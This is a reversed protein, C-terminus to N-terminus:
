QLTLEMSMLLKDSWINFPRFEITVNDRSDGLVYSDAVTINTGKQVEKGSNKSEENAHFYSREIEVGNQFAKGTVFYDFSQPKDGNNVFDYYVVLVTEGVDNEMIEHSLYKVTCDGYEFESKKENKKEEAKKDKKVKAKKSEEKNESSASDAKAEETEKPNSDGEGGGTMAGIFGIAVIIIIAWTLCGMGQKKRCNPCVKAGYPIETKCHKCIKTQPKEKKSM